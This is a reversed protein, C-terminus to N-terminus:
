GGGIIRHITIINEESIKYHDIEDKQLVKGDVLILVLLVNNRGFIVTKLEPNRKTIHTLVEGITDGEALIEEQENAYNKLDDKLIVRIGM